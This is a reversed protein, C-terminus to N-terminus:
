QQTADCIRSDLGAAMCTVELLELMIRLVLFLCFQHKPRLLLVLLFCRYRYDEHEVWNYYCKYYDFHCYAEDM